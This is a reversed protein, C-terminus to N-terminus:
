NDQWIFESAVVVCCLSQHSWLVVYVRIRGCCLMFESTVVVCCLSQHSWLVVYVRIRGCCLMFESAGCCLMFESAVVVCCLSQHSWLVVYFGQATYFTLETKDGETAVNLLIKLKKYRVNKWCISHFGVSTVIKNTYQQLKETQKLSKTGHM